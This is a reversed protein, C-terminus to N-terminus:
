EKTVLQQLQKATKKLTANGEWAALLSAIVPSSISSGNLALVENYVELLKKLDKVPTEEFCELCATLLVELAENHQRSIQMNASLLDTLRKLPAWAVRQQLGITQGLRQSSIRGSIRSNWYEAAYNRVTKDGHLMCLAVFLYMIDSVPIDLEHLMQIGQMVISTEQVEYYGSSRQCSAMIRALFIDPHHPMLLLIRAVDTISVSMYKGVGNLYEQLLPSPGNLIEAEPFTIDMVTEESWYRDYEHTKINYEGYARYPKKGTEWKFCGTLLEGPLRNYSFGAFADYVTEPAKVLGVQMWAAELTLPGQPLAEADLLFLLLRKYEDEPLQKVLALADSTDQLACRSIAVQLDLMDPVAQQQQYQQLRQVLIVPDIWAPQHTPTSLLPLTDGQKIKDLALVMLKRHPIYIGNETRSTKWHALDPLERRMRWWHQSQKIENLRATYDANTDAMCKGYNLFFLSMAVDLQGATGPPRKFVVAARQFAPELQLLVDTTITGQASLLMAPLLDIHHPANNEFAQSAFFVLDEAGIRNHEGILPLQETIVEAAITDEQMDNDMFDQLSNRTSTLMSSSYQGLQEKLAASTKDGWQLILKAAKAQTDEDKSLFAQCLEICAREKIEPHQKGAKELIQITTVLMSKKDMAIVQPLHDFFAQHDFKKEASLIKLYSLATNVAKSQPSDLTLLLLPQLQLLEDQTPKLSILLDLFWGTLLKNFGRNATNLCEALVRMRDITGDGTYRLILGKWNPEETISKKNAVNQWRDSFHINSPYEFLYWFHESMTEPYQFLADPSYHTRKGEYVFIAAPLRNTILQPTLTLFGGAHLEMLATYKVDGPLIEKEAMEQMWENFWDPVYWSVIQELLNERFLTFHFSTAQFAKKDYCVFTAITLMASQRITLRTRWSNNAVPVLETYFTVLKSLAPRLTKREEPSLKQLFPIIDQDREMTLLQELEEQHTM